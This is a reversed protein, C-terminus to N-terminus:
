DARPRPGHVGPEIEQEVVGKKYPTTLTVNAAPDARQLKLLEQTARVMTPYSSSPGAQWVGRDRRATKGQLTMVFAVNCYAEAEPVVKTLEAVSAPYHGLEALTMGLNVRAYM